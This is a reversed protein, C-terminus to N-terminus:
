GWPAQDRKGTLNTRNSPTLFTTKQVGIWFPSKLCELDGMSYQLPSIVNGGLFVFVLVLAWIGVSGQKLSLGVHLSLFYEYNSKGQGLPPASSGVQRSSHGHKASPDHKPVGWHVIVRPIRRGAFHGFGVVCGEWWVLPRREYGAGLVAVAVLWDVGCAGVCHQGLHAGAPQIPLIPPLLGQLVVIRSFLGFEFRHLFTCTICLIEEMIYLELNPRWFLDLDAKNDYQLFAQLGWMWCNYVAAEFLLIGLILPM